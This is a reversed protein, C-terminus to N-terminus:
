QSTQVGFLRVVEGIERALRATDVPGSYHQMLRGSADFLFVALTHDIQGDPLVRRTV